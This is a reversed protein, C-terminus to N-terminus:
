RGGVENILAPNGAAAPATGGAGITASNVKEELIKLSPDNLQQLYNITNINGVDDSILIRCDKERVDPRLDVLTVGTSYDVGNKIGGILDGPAVVFTEKKVEGKEKRFVSVSVSTVTRTSMQQRVSTFYYDTTRPATVEKWGTWPSDIAFKAADDPNKALNFTNYLPNKLKVRMRYHYTKGSQVTDDHAWMIIDNNANVGVGFTMRTPDFPASLAPNQVQGDPNYTPTTNTRGYGDAGRNFSERGPIDRGYGDRGLPPRRGDNRQAPNTPTERGSPVPRVGRGAGPQGRRPDDSIGPGSSALEIPLPAYGGIRRGGGGGGGGGGERSGSGTGTSSKAAAASKREAAKVKQEEAKKQQNYIYYQQKQERTMKEIPITTTAPDFPQDNAADAATLDKPAGKSPIYWPDGKLITYFIPEVIDVQHTEAWQRYKEQQVLDGPKPYPEMRVLQLPTLTVKNGWQDPGIQEEREVELQVFHTLFVQPPLPQPKGNPLFFAKKWEAALAKMDLKSEVTIWSKDLATDLVEQPTLQPPPEPQAQPDDGEALIPLPKAVMSNGSIAGTITIPPVKPLDLTIKIDDPGPTRFEVGPIAPRVPAGGALVEPTMRDRKDSMNRVFEDVFNQVKFANAVDGPPAEMADQLHRVSSENIKPDVGEPFVTDTGVKVQLQDPSVVYGYVVWLLFLSAVGLGVWEAYQELFAVVKKM